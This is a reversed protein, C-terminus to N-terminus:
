PRQATLPGSEHVEPPSTSRQEEGISAVSLYSEEEQDFHLTLVAHLSYLLRRVDALDEEAPPEATESLVRGLRGILHAIEAHSRSMTSTRGEGGLVRALMPYLEEQEAKEHPLLERSLWDHVSRAMDLSQEPPAVGVADAASRLDDLRPRLTEHEISFRGAIASDERAFGSRLHRSSLGRMSNLIVAVDIGEQSLAGWAPPLLGLGAILMAALSLGIGATVSQLAISLSRRATVMAEGLRDLRDVTLVVDAAESSATAGRAGLAVGVDALALAPADNIGDGVMVTPGGQRALAVADLKEAPTREAMVEDVGIVAGVSEAVDARDGTVMVIRSIGDRRLKRITRGADPRIPDAFVLVAEARGDVSVYVTLNGERDARRRVPVAWAFDGGVWSRKGVAVERDGVRGRTGQGPVEVVDSPNALTLAAQHAARVISAALLHPSVQDLSAALELVEARDGDVRTAVTVLDPRGVTLTGTKDLLLVRSKALQELVAGGKIVVGRRAAVSLGSVLAVPVALILPCPTAVVLVAVARTASGAALGAVTAATFAVVLFWLAYRDAMRVAPASEAEAARVLTVLGSYTSDASTTTARLDVPGGANVTGSRLRDGGVREVPLPEGTLASEDIVAPGAEVLGDVPIVEGPKVVLIDGVRVAEVTVDVIRDQDRVHALRPTREVLSRLERGARGEAWSELSRGTALMLAIVAGALFEKVALTGVLAALAILDVGLRRHRAADVVWWAAPAVAIITTLAWLLRGTGGLGALHLLGGASLGAAAILLAALEAVRGGGLPHDRAEGGDQRGPSTRDRLPPLTGSPEFNSM